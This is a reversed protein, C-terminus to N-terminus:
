QIQEFRQCKCRRQGAPVTQTKDNLGVLFATRRQDIVHDIQRTAATSTEGHPQDLASVPVAFDLTRLDIAQTIIWHERALGLGVQAIQHTGSHQELGTIRDERLKSRVVGVAEGGHPLQRQFDAILIVLKLTQVAHAFRKVVIHDAGVPQPQAAANIRRDTTVFRQQRIQHTAQQFVAGVRRKHIPNDIGIDTNILQHNIRQVFHQRMAQRTM